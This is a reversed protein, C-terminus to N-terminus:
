VLSIEGKVKPGESQAKFGKLIDHVSEIESVKFHIYVM